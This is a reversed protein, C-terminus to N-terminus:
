LIEEVFTSRQVNHLEQDIFTQPEAQGFDCLTGTERFRGM